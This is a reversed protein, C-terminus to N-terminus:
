PTPATISYDDLWTKAIELLDALGSGNGWIASMEAFDKLNIKLNGDYDVELGRKSIPKGLENNDLWDALLASIDKLNTICDKSGDIDTPDLVVPNLDKAMTCADDYVEVMAYSVVPDKDALTVSLKLTVVSPNDTAKTITVTPTPASSTSGDGGDNPTFVVGDVPYASWAYTLDRKPLETDKNIVNPDLIVPEGSWTIWDEGASVFPLNPDYVAPVPTVDYFTTGMRIEDVFYKVGMFTITDLQTQDLSPKNPEAWNASSLNPKAIIQADFAAESIEETELFRGLSIIDAGGTDADWELKVVVINAAGFDGNTDLKQWVYAGTADVYTLTNAAYSNGPIAGQMNNYQGADYFMPYISTRNDRNPGGGTGFGSGGSGIGGYNDGRSGTPAPITGLVLNPQEENRDWARASVYSIWTTTGTTFTATVNPDLGIDANLNNGGQNYGVYGGSTRLNDVTGDFTSPILPDSLVVGSLVGEQHFAWSVNGISDNSTWTGTTGLAGGQGTLETGVYAFPEYVLVEANAPACALLVAVAV